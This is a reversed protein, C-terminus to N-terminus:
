PIPALRAVDLAAIHWDACWRIHPDTLARRYAAGAAPLDGAAEFLLGQLRDIIAQNEARRTISMAAFADVLAKAAATDGSLQRWALSAWETTEAAFAAEVDARPDKRGFHRDLAALWLALEATLGDEGAMAAALDLNALAAARNGSLRYLEARLLFLRCRYEAQAANLGQAAEAWALAAALGKAALVLILTYQAVFAADEGGKGAATMAIGAPEYQGQAARAFSLRREAEYPYTCGGALAARFEAEATAADGIDFLLSGLVIQFNGREDCPPCMEIARRYAHLAGDIDGGEAMEEAAHATMVASIFRRKASHPAGLDCSQGARTDEGNSNAAQRM